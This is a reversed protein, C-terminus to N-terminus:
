FGLMLRLEADIRAMERTSLQGRRSLFRKKDLAKTQATVAASEETLGNGPTPILHVSGAFRLAGLKSTVPVILIVPLNAIRIDSSVIIAPRDGHQERGPQESEEGDPKKEPPPLHVNWVEGRKM